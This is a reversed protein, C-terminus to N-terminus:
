FYADFVTGALRRYVKFLNDKKKWVYISVFVYKTFYLIIYFYLMNVGYITQESLETPPLISSKYLAHCSTEPCVDSRRSLETKCM